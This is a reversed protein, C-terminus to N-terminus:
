NIREIHIGTLEALDSNFLQENEGDDVLYKDAILTAILYLESTTLNDIKTLSSASHLSRLRKM